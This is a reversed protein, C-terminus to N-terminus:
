LSVLWLYVKEYAYITHAKLVWPCLSLSLSLVANFQMLIENALSNM